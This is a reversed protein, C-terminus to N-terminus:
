LSSRRHAAHAREVMELAGVELLERRRERRVDDPHPQLRPLQAAVALLHHRGEPLSELGSPAARGLDDGLRLASEDDVRVDLRRVLVRRLEVM